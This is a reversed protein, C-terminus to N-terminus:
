KAGGEAAAREGGPKQVNVCKARPDIKGVLGTLVSGPGVEVFEQVGEGILSRVSKEWLVPATVQKLLTARLQALDGHPAATVNSVV